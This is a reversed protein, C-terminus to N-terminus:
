LRRGAGPRDKERRVRSRGCPSLQEIRRYRRRSRGRRVPDHLNAPGSTGARGPKASLSSGPSKGDEFFTYGSAACGRLEKARWRLDQVRALLQRRPLGPITACFQLLLHPISNPSHFISPKLKEAPAYRSEALLGWAGGRLNVAASMAIPPATAVHTGCHQSIRKVFPEVLPKYRAGPLLRSATKEIGDVLTFTTEVVCDAGPVKKCSQLYDGPSQVSM